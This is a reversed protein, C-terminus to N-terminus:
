WGKAVLQHIKVQLIDRLFAVPKTARPSDEDNGCCWGCRLKASAVGREAALNTQSRDEVIWDSQQLLLDIQQRARKEPNM